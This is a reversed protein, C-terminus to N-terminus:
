QHHHHRDAPRAPVRRQREQGNEGWRRPPALGVPLSVLRQGVPCALRNQLGFALQRNERIVTHASPRARSVVVASRGFAAAQYQLCSGVTLSALAATRRTSQHGSFKELDRGIPSIM